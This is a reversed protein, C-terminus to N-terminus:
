RVAARQAVCAPSTPATPSPCTTRAPCSAPRAPPSARWWRGSPVPRSTRTRRGWGCTSTAGDRGGAPLGVAARQARLGLPRRLRGAQVGRPAGAARGGVRRSALRRPRAQARICVAGRARATVWRSSTSGSRSLRPARITTVQVARLFPPLSDGQGPTDPSAVGALVICATLREPIRWGCALAHVGGGSWGAVAFRDLGLGDALSAVDDPWSRLTRRPAPDSVGLGPRDVGILRVGATLAAEAMLGATYRCGPTGHFFLLPAGAPDGYEAWGLARGDPLAHLGQQHPEPIM